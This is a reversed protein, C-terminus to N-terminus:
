GPNDSNQETGGTRQTGDRGCEKCGSTGLESDIQSSEQAENDRVRANKKNEAETMSKIRRFFAEYVLAILLTLVPIM